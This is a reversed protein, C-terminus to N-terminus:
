TPPRRLSSPLKSVSVSAARAYSKAAILDPSQLRIADASNLHQPLSCM